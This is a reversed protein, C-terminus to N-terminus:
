VRLRALVELFGACHDPSIGTLEGDIGNTLHFRLSLSESSKLLPDQAVAVTHFLPNAPEPEVPLRKLMLCRWRYITAVKIGHSRAYAALSLGSDQCRNLHDLWHQEKKTLATHSRKTTPKVETM